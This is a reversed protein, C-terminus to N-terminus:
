LKEIMTSNIYTLGGANATSRTGFTGKNGYVRYGSKEDLPFLEDDLKFNYVEIDSPETGSSGRLGVEDFILSEAVGLAKTSILVNDIYLSLNDASREFLFNYVQNLNLTVTFTKSLGSSGRVQISLTNFLVFMNLNSNNGFLFSFASQASAIIEMSGGDVLSFTSDLYIYDSNTKLFKNKFSGNKHHHNVQSFLSM